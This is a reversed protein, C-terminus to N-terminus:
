QKQADEASVRHLANNVWGDEFALACDNATGTPCSFAIEAAAKGSLDQIVNGPNGAESYDFVVASRASAGAISGGIALVAAVATLTLKITKM